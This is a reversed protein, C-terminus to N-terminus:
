RCSPTKFPLFLMKDNRAQGAIAQYDTNKKLRNRSECSHCSKKSLGKNWLFPNKDMM